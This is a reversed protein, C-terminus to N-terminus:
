CQSEDRASHAAVAGGSRWVRDVGGSSIVNALTRIPTDEFSVTITHRGAPVEFTILGNPDSPVIPVPQGDLKVTWGPFAFTLYTAQFAQPADLRSRLGIPATASPSSTREPPCRPDISANSSRMRRM